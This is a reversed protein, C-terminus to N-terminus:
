KRALINFFKAESDIAKQMARRSITSDEEVIKGDVGLGLALRMGGEERLFVYGRELRTLQLTLHLFANLIEEIAVGENLQRTARLLWNLKEMEDTSSRHQNGPLRLESLSTLLDAVPRQILGTRMQDDQQLHFRLRPGNLSGMQLVDDLNLIARQVRVANVFTGHTSKQDLITYTDGDRLIVAHQRSVCPDSLVIDQNPSRGISTSDRNLDVTHFGSSDSYSLMMPAM